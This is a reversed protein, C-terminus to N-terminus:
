AGIKKSIVWKKGKKETRPEEKVKQPTKRGLLHLFEMRAFNREAPLGRFHRASFNFRFFHSILDFIRVFSRVDIWCWPRAYFFGNLCPMSNLSMSDTVVFYKRHRRMSNEISVKIKRRRHLTEINAYFKEIGHHCKEIDDYFKESNGNFKPHRWLNERM